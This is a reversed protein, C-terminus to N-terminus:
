QEARFTIGDLSLWNDNTPGGNDLSTFGSEIAVTGNGFVNVRMLQNNALTTFVRGTTPRYGGPLTFIVREAGDVGFVCVGQSGDIPRVLGRLHVVGWPDKFFAAKGWSAPDFNQWSCTEDAFFPPQGPAGVERWPEPQVLPGPVGRDGKPGRDGEPGRQGSPGRLGAPGTAGRAGEPLEGPKFDRALLSRNKVKKSTVANKGLHKSKVSGRKLTVAAYSSGGLSVFVAITAMVNAYTLRSRLKALL